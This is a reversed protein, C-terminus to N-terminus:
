SSLIFLCRALTETQAKEGSQELRFTTGLTPIAGVSDNSEPNVIRVTEKVTYRPMFHHLVPTDRGTERNPLGVQMQLCSHQM